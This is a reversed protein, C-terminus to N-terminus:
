SAAADQAPRARRTRPADWGIEEVLTGVTDDQLVLALRADNETDARISTVRIATRSTETIRWMKM